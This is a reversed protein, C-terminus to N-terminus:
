KIKVDIAKPKSKETKPLRLNLMGDKFSAEIKAEDINDPLTFSRMFSGFYRELRHFKKGKEEKEQKREGTITLVGSDVTVKVDDKKVDPIEVKLAFDSETESIDVRPVWDGSAMVEHRGRHPLALAKNYQEFMDEMQRFPDWKTLKM